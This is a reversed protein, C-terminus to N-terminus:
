QSVQVSTRGEGAAAKQSHKPCLREVQSWLWAEQPCETVWRAYQGSQIRPEVAWACAEGQMVWYLVLLIFYGLAPHQLNNSLGFDVWKSSYYKDQSQRKRESLKRRSRKLRENLDVIELSYSSVEQHLQSVQEQLVQKDQEARKLQMQTLVPPFIYIIISITQFRYPKKDVAHLQLAEGNIEM